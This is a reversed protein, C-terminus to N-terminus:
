SVDYRSVIIDKGNPRVSRRKTDRPLPKRMDPLLELTPFPKFTNHRVLPMKRMKAGKAWVWLGM